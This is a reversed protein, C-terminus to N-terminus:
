STRREMTTGAVSMNRRPFPAGPYAGFVVPNRRLAALLLGSLPLRRGSRLAIQGAVAGYTAGVLNAAIDGMTDPLGSRQANTGFLADVSAEFLEWVAGVTSSLGVALLSLIWLGTRPPAGATPLLALAYGTLALVASAVMHLTTDWVLDDQYLGGWEGAVFAALCFVLIGERLGVPMRIGSIWSYFMPLLAMSVAGGAGLILLRDGTAIGLGLAALAGAWVLLSLLSALKVKM